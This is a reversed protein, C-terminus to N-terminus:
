LMREKLSYLPDLLWEMLNRTDVSIDANLLMGAQLTIAEGYATVTQKDLKVTVRYVPESLSIKVPLDAPSLITDSVEVIRGDYTGFRQYPFAQYQIKVLQGARIFGVARSPVYLYAELKANNPLLDAMVEGPIVTQGESVRLTAIRGQAPATLIYHERGSVQTVQRRIVSMEAELISTREETLDPIKEIQHHIQTLENEKTIIQYQITSLLQRSNLQKEHRSDYEIKSIHKKQLLKLYSKSLDKALDVSEQQLERQEDLQQLELQIGRARERLNLIDSQQKNGELVIRKTLSELEVEFEKLLLLDVNEGSETTHQASIVAISSGQEVTEGSKVLLESYIGSQSPIIKVVGKDPALYGIVHEKRTYEGTVLYVFFISTVIVLVSTLLYFSLPQILLVKGLWNDQKSTIVEKRFLDSM